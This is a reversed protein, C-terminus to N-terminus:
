PAPSFLIEMIEHGITNFVCRSVCYIGPFPHCFWESRNRTPSPGWKRTIPDSVIFRFQTVNPLNRARIVRWKGPRSRKSWPNNCHHPPAPRGITIYAGEQNLAKDKNGGTIARSLSRIANVASHGSSVEPATALGWAGPVSPWKLTANGQFPADLM